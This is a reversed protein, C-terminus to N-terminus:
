LYFSFSIALMIFRLYLPLFPIVGLRRSWKYIFDYKIGYKRVVEELTLLDNPTNQNERLNIIEAM